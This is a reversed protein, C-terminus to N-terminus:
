KYLQRIAHLDKDKPASYLAVNRGLESQQQHRYRNKRNKRTSEYPDGVMDRVFEQHDGRGEPNRARSKRNEHRLRHATVKEKEIHGQLQNKTVGGHEETYDEAARHAVYDNGSEAARSIERYEPDKHYQTQEKDRQRVAQNTQKEAARARRGQKQIGKEGIEGLDKTRNVSRNEQGGHVYKVPASPRVPRKEQGGHYGSVQSQPQKMAKTQKAEQQRRQRTGQGHGINTSQRSDIAREQSVGRYDQGRQQTRDYTRGMYSAKRNEAKRVKSHANDIQDETVKHNEERYDHAAHGAVEDGRNAARNMERYDPSTRISTEHETNAQQLLRRRQKKAARVKRGERRIGKEGIEGISKENRRAQAEARIRQRVAHVSYGNDVLRNHRGIEAHQQQSDRKYGHEEPTEQGHVTRRARIRETGETGHAIQGQALNSNAQQAAGGHNRRATTQADHARLGEENFAASRKKNAEYIDRAEQASKKGVAGLSKEKPPSYLNSGSFHVKERSHRKRRNDQTSSGTYNVANRVGEEAHGRSEYKGKNVAQETALNRRRHAQDEKHNATQVQEESTKHNEEHYDNRAHHAVPDGDKAAENMGVYNPDKHFENRENIRDREVKKRAKAAARARRGHKQLKKEGVDGVPLRKYQQRIAHLEENITNPNAGYPGFKERNLKEHPTEGKPAPKSVPTVKPTNRRAMRFNHRNDDRQVEIPTGPSHIADRNQAAEHQQHLRHAIQAEREAETPAAKKEYGMQVKKETVYPTLSKVLIPSLPKGCVSGLGLMKRTTDQNAPLVVASYELMLVRRLHKGQPIGRHYDAQIPEVQIEQYGISGSRIYRKAMLDFLQQCFLAHDYEKSRDVGTIGKGQYFYAKGKAQQSAPDLHVTYERTKPNESMGIPLEYKKGHDFLVIPNMMHRELSIGAIELLDGVGDRRRGDAFPIWISMESENIDMEKPFEVDLGFKDDTLKYSYGTITKEVKLMDMLNNQIVKTM